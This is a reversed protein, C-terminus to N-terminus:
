CVRGGRARAAGGGWAAQGGGGAREHRSSSGPVSCEKRGWPAGPSSGRGLFSKEAVQEKLKLM